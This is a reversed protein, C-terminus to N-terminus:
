SGVFGTKFFPNPIPVVITGGDPNYLTDATATSDLFYIGPANIFYITELIGLKISGSFQSGNGVANLTIVQPTPGGFSPVTFVLLNTTATTFSTVNLNLGGDGTINVSTLKSLDMANPDNPDSTVTIISGPGVPQSNPSLSSTFNTIAFTGTIYFGSGGGVELVGSGSSDSVMVMKWHANYLDVPLVVPITSTIDFFQAGNMHFLPNSFILTGDYFLQFSTFNNPNNTIGGLFIKLDTIAFGAPLGSFPTAVGNILINAVPACELSYTQNNGLPFGTALDGVDQGSCVLVASSAGGNLTWAPTGVETVSVPFAQITGM